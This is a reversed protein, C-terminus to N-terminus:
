KSKRKERGGREGDDTEKKDYIQHHRFSSLSSLFSFLEVFTCGVVTQSPSLFMLREKAPFVM